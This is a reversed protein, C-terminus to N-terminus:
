SAMRLGRLFEDQDYIIVWEIREFSTFTNELM